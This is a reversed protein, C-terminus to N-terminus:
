GRDHLSLSVEASFTDATASSKTICLHMTNDPHLHQLDQAELREQM